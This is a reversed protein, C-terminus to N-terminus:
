YAMSFEADRIIPVAHNFNLLVSSLIKGKESM